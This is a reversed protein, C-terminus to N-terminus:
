SSFAFQSSPVQVKKSPGGFSVQGNSVSPLPMMPEASRM